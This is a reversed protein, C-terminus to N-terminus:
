ENSVRAYLKTNKSRKGISMYLLHQPPPSQTVCLSLSIFTETPCKWSRAEAGGPGLISEMTSKSGMQLGGTYQASQQPFGLTIKQYQRM